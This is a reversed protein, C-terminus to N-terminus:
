ICLHVHLQYCIQDTDILGLGENKCCKIHSRADAIDDCAVYDLLDVNTNENKIDIMKDLEM